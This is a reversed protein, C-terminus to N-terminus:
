LEEWLDIAYADGTPFYPPPYYLLDNDFNLNRTCYGNGIVVGSGCNYNSGVYTFGYRLKTAIAGNVTISSKYYGPYYGRGVRGNQALLAADIVLNSLSDRIVSIDKQAVLGIVDTGDYSTYNLNDKGIYIDKGYSAPNLESTDSAVITIQKNSIKGEVWANNEVFIIGNDPINFITVCRSDTRDSCTKNPKDNRQYEIIGFSSSDYSVVTRMEFTGNNKLIIERGEKTDDFYCGNATCGNGGLGKQAEEKIFDNDESFGTFSVETVPFQRGAEFVDDRVPINAPPLPDVTGKHTHVGFEPDGTHDPDDYVDKHSTILNQAVGDFRIGGNSHIKGNITTGEGFRIDSDTVVAYESWSPKRFRVQVVRKVNPDKYTWGTAKVTVITSNSEPAEVEINYKGIPSGQPFEVEYGGEEKGLFDGAWFESLKKQNLASTEHALYWRYFYVGAEALQFSQEKNTTRISYKMQSVVFQLISVLIISVAFMIILGYALASGKKIKQYNNEM